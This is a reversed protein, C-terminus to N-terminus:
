ASDDSDLAYRRAQVPEMAAVPFLSAPPLAGTENSEADAHAIGEDTRVRTRAPPPAAVPSASRKPVARQHIWARRRQLLPALLEDHEELITITDSPRSQSGMAGLLGQWAHARVHVRGLRVFQGARLRLALAGQEGWLGVHFVRGRCSAEDRGYRRQLHEENQQLVDNHSYDTVYLDPVHRGLHVAVLEVILDATTGARLAAVMTPAPLPAQPASAETSQTLQALAAAEQPGIHTGELQSYTGQSYLGWSYPRFAPGVCVVRGLFEKCQVHRLLIADGARATHPLRDLQRAFLNAPVVPGKQPARIYVRVMADAGKDTGRVIPPEVLVGMVNALQGAQIEDLPTYTVQDCEAPRQPSLAQTTDPPSAPPAEDIPNEAYSSFWADSCLTLKLPEAPQIIVTTPRARDSEFWLTLPSADVTEVLAKLAIREAWVVGVRPAEMPLRQLEAGYGSLFMYIPSSTAHRALAQHLAPAHRGGFTLPLIHGDPADFCCQFSPTSETLVETIHSLAGATCVMAGRGRAVRSLWRALPVSEGLMAYEDPDMGLLPTSPHSQQAASGAFPPGPETDQVPFPVNAREVVRSEMVARRRRSRGMHSTGWAPTAAALTTGKRWRDRAVRRQRRGLPQM